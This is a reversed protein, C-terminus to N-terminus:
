GGGGRGEDEVRPKAGGPLRTQAVSVEPFM